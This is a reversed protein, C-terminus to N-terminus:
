SRPNGFFNVLFRLAFVLPPDANEGFASIEIFFCSRLAFHLIFRHQPGLHLKSLHGRLRLDFLEELALSGKFLLHKQFLDLLRSLLSNMKLVEKLLLLEPIVLLPGHSVNFLSLGHKTKVVVFAM